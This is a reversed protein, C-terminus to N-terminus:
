RSLVLKSPPANKFYKVVKKIEDNALIICGQQFPKYIIVPCLDKLMSDQVAKEADPGM